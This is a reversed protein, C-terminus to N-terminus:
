RGISRSGENPGSGPFPPQVNNIIIPPLVPAISQASAAQFTAVTMQQIGVAIAIVATVVVIVSGAVWYKFDRSATKIDKRVEDWTARSEDRTARADERIGRLEERTSDMRDFILEFRGDIRVIAKEVESLRGEM